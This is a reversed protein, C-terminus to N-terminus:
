VGWARSLDTCLEERGFNAIDKVFCAFQVPNLYQLDSVRPEFPQFSEDPNQCDPNHRALSITPWPSITSIKCFAYVDQM